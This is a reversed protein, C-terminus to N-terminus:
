ALYDTGVLLCAFFDAKRPSFSGIAPRMAPATLTLTGRPHGQPKHPCPPPLLRAANDLGVRPPPQQTHGCFPRWRLAGCRGVCHAADAMAARQMRWRMGSCGGVCAAADALAHRRM